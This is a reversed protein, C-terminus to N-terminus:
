FQINWNYGLIDYDSTMSVTHSSMDGNINYATAASDFNKVATSLDVAHFDVYERSVLEDNRTFDALVKETLIHSKITQDATEQTSVAFDKVDATSLKTTLLATTRQSSFVTSTSPNVDDVTPRVSLDAELGMVSSQTIPPDYDKALLNHGFISESTM